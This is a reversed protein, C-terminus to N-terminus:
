FQEKLKETDTASKKQKEKAQEKIRHLRDKAKQDNKGVTKKTLMELIDETSNAQSDQNTTKKTINENAQRGLANAYESKEKSAGYYEPMMYTGRKKGKDLEPVVRNDQAWPDNRVGTVMWSVEVNPENTRVVFKNDQIKEAVIAQAFTGIVTLQYRFEINLSEFYGPMEVTAYGESDTTINGNYINMMEPSEVFSHILYKNEPDQPHDIKFTGGAKSLNGNIDVDGNFVGAMDAGQGFVGVAVGSSGADKNAIGLVGYATAGNEINTIGYLGYARNTNDKAIAEGYVGYSWGGTGVTKGVVGFNDEFTGDKNTNNLGL